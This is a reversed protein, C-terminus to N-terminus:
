DNWDNDIKMQNYIKNLIEELKDRLVLCTVMIREYNRPSQKYYGCLYHYLEDCIDEVEANYLWYEVTCMCSRYSHVLNYRRSKLYSRVGKDEFQNIWEMNFRTKGHTYIAM